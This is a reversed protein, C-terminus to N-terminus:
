TPSEFSCAVESFDVLNEYITKYTKERLINADSDVIPKCFTVKVFVRKKSFTRLFHNIFTDENVWADNKDSYQIAVPQITLSNEAAIKFIGYKFELLKPGSSTTGEPFVYIREGEQLKKLIEERAKRRSKKSERDVFITGVLNAANGLIPWKSVEKKALFIGPLISYLVPIDIYSRHNALILCNKKNIDGDVEVVIDLMENLRKAWQNTHKEFIESKYGSPITHIFYRLACFSTYLLMKAFKILTKARTPLIAGRLTKGMTPQYFPHFRNIIEDRM